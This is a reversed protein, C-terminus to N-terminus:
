SGDARLLPLREFLHGAVFDGGSDWWGTPSWPRGHDDKRDYGISYLLYSGRTRRYRLQREDLPDQLTTEAVKGRLAALSEPYAGMVSRYERLALELRLLRLRAITGRYEILDHELPFTVVDEVLWGDPLPPFRQQAVPKRLEEVAATLYRDIKAYMWPKPSAFLMARWPM